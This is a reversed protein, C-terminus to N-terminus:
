IAQVGVRRDLVEPGPWGVPLVEVATLEIYGAPHLRHEYRIWGTWETRRPGIQASRSAIPEDQAAGNLLQIAVIQGRAHGIETVDLQVDRVGNGLPALERWLVGGHVVVRM